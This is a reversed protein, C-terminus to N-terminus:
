PTHQKSRHGKQENNEGSQRARGEVLSARQRCALEGGTLRGRAEMTKIACNHVVSCVASPAGTIVCDRSKLCKRENGSCDSLRPSLCNLNQVVLKEGVEIAVNQSDHFVGSM